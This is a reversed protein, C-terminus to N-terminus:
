RLGKEFHKWLKAFEEPIPVAAKQLRKLTASVRKLVDPHRSSAILLEELILEDSLIFDSEGNGIAKKRGPSNKGGGSKFQLLLRLYSLVKQPSNVLEKLISQHRSDGGEIELEAEILLKTELESDNVKVVVPIFSSINILAVKDWFMKESLSKDDPIALQKVFVSVCNSLPEVLTVGLHLSFTQDSDNLEAKLNWKASILQHVTQRLLHKLSDVTEINIPQFKHEVFLSGHETSTLQALLVGVGVKSADGELRLMTETNRPSAKIQDGLAAATANASGVHWCVKKGLQSILLKAHLDQKNPMEGSSSDYVENREEGNVILENLSFCHWGALKEKGVANLEEARSFLYRKDAPAVNELWNLASVGGGTSKIFPSVILLEDFQDHDFFLPSGYGAGGALFQSAKFQAPVDWVIYDLEKVMDTAPEFKKDLSLLTKLFDLGSQSESIKSKSKGMHGDLTVAVDWSRDFTLNRSLVILRYCIKPRQNSQEISAFRLLWLKPHFSSFAGGNPVIAHLCPELLTYLRNFQPPLHINGKQYFVKLRGKLQGIAELLALKEGKLDGDLTDHFCLAIPVALLADLDLSYTTAIASDFTYGDPPTLQEGYYLRDSEPNLM